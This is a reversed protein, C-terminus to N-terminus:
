VVLHWDHTAWIEMSNALYGRGNQNVRCEKVLKFGNDKFWNGNLQRCHVGSVYVVLSDTQANKVNQLLGNYSDYLAQESFGALWLPEYLYVVVPNDSNRLTQAEIHEPVTIDPVDEQGYVAQIFRFMDGHVVTGNRIGSSRLKDQAENVSGELLELGVSRSFLKTGDTREYLAAGIVMSGTGCGLDVFNYSRDDKTMEALCNMIKRIAHEPTPKSAQLGHWRLRLNELVEGDILFFIVCHLLLM